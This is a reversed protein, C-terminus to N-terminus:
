ILTYIDLLSGGSVETSNEKIKNLWFNLIDICRNVVKLLVLSIAPIKIDLLSM